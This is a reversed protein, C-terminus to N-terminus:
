PPIKTYENTKDTKKKDWIIHFTPKNSPFEHMIHGSDMHHYLGSAVHVRVLNHQSQAKCGCLHAPCKPSGAAALLFLYRMMSDESPNIRFARPFFVNQFLSASNTVRM